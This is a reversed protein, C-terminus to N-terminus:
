SFFFLIIWVSCKGYFFFSACLAHLSSFFILCMSCKCYFYFSASLVRVSFSLFIACMSCKCYFFFRFVCFVYQPFFFFLACLVSVLRLIIVPCLEHIFFLFCLRAELINCANTVLSLSPQLFDHFQKSEWFPMSVYLFDRCICKCAYGMATRLMNM